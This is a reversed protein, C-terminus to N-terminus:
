PYPKDMRRILYRTGRINNTKNKTTQRNKSDLSTQVTGELLTRPIGQFVLVYSRLDEGARADSPGASRIGFNQVGLRGVLIRQSIIERINGISMIIGGRLILIISSDFGRIHICIYIYIYLRERERYIYIYIYMCVYRASPHLHPAVLRALLRGEVVVGVDRLGRPAVRKPVPQVHVEGLTFKAWRTGLRKRALLKLIQEFQSTRLPINGQLVLYGNLQTGMFGTSVRTVSNAETPVVAADVRRHRYCHTTYRSTYPITTTKPLVSRNHLTTVYTYVSVCRAYVYAHQAQKAHSTHLLM